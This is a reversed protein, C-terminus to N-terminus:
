EVPERYPDVNYKNPTTTTNTAPATSIKPKEPQPPVVKPTSNAIEFKQLPQADPVIKESPVEKPTEPPKEIQKEIPKEQQKEPEKALNGNEDMSLGVFRPVAVPRQVVEEKKTEVNSSVSNVSAPKYNIRSPISTPSVSINKFASPTAVKPSAPTNKEVTPLNVPKIEPLKSIPTPGPTKIESNKKQKSEIYKLGYDFVRNELDSIIQESLIESINLNKKIEETFQDPNDIGILLLSVEDKLKESQNEKLEYKKAVETVRNEWEGDQLFNQVEKPLDQIYEEKNFQSNM